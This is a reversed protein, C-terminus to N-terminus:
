PAVYLDWRIRRSGTHTLTMGGATISAATSSVRLRQLGGTLTDLLYCGDCTSLEDESAALTLAPAAVAGDLAATLTDDSYAPAAATQGDVLLGVVDYVDAVDGPGIVDVVSEDALTDITPDLMPVLYGARLLLPLVGLPADLTVESGGAVVTQAQWDLYTGAPLDLTRSTAGRTVVPAVLLAPGFYYADDVGRLDARDPHELFLHRMVPAGSAHAEELLAHLYPELRTHLRAYRDWAAMAEPANWISAKLSSDSGVCADQDQMVPSLAGYEIWRALLEEDAAQYGDKICHFGGIDSGWNPVGSIGLNIGARVVSPLGDADEFSAAPDGSWAAPVLASSGTYGSRMFALWDGAQDGAEMADHVARAYLVPYLNHLAEGPTGDAGVADPPLYEAFDYMWGAYGLDTAWAFSSQYWATADPNTFDVLYLHPLDGGTLIWLDPYTGDGLRVFYGNAVGEAAWSAIPSEPDNNVFSNYYGNVRYGLAEASAVWAALQSERGLHSASPYFHVADDVSTIALDLDRMKQIEPVGDVQDGIGIRRRPGMSWTPPMMPRGTTATFADIVQYPWPRPDTPTPVYVEYALTPAVHWVRWADDRETALEFQSRYTTDVWFGYGATGITFPVPYYTMAQGSPYPNGADATFGEGSGIGGEESWSFVPVGRQDTRNFREGFGLWGDDAAAAFGASWARPTVQDGQVAATVRLAGTRADLVLDVCPDDGGAPSALTLSLRPGDQLAGTVALDDHWPDLTPYFVTYGPSFFDDYGATGSTWAAAAYGSGDGGSASTLVPNGAGDRVTFGFPARTVDVTIGTATLQWSDPLNDQVPCHDSGGGCASLALLAALFPTARRM